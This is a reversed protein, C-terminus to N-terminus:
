GIQKVEVRLKNALDYGLKKVNSRDGVLSGIASRKTDTDVYLGILKIENGCVVAYAATPDSCGGDLTKIFERECISTEQSVIDNVCDLFSLDEGKRGQIALVGQGASPIIEDVAFVKSIRNELGLRKIGAYALVIASFEGSDLKSFRTIVNGRIPKVTYDIDINLLQIKRRESSTGIPKSYDFSEKGEPLIFVDRPDERKTYAVIPLEDLLEAPMDKLSHVSIDISGDLLANDLEKVFLGKGGIKDLTRDLIMDGTTKMTKLEIEIDKYKSKIKNIVIQSQIIALKSDRSGVVIKNKM